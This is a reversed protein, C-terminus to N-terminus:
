KQANDIGSEFGYLEMTYAETDQYIIGIGIAYWTEEKAYEGNGKDITDQVKYAHVKKGKLTADVEGLVKFKTIADRNIKIFNLLTITGTSKSVWSDGVILPFRLYQIEPDLVVEFFMFSFLPFDLTKIFAGEDTVRVHNGKQEEPISYYYYSKGDIVEEPYMYGVVKKIENPHNKYIVRFYWKAGPNDPIISQGDTLKTIASVTTASAVLSGFPLEQPEYTPALIASATMTSKSAALQSGSAFIAVATLFIVATYLFRKM